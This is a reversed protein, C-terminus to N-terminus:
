GIENIISVNKSLYCYLHQKYKDSKFSFVSRTFVCTGLMKSM